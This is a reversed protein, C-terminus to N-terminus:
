TGLKIEETRSINENYNQGPEITDGPIEWFQNALQIVLWKEETHPVLNVNSTLNPDPNTQVVDFQGKVVDNAVGVEAFLNLYNGQNIRQAM